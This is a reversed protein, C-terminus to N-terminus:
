PTFLPLRPALHIGGQAMDPPRRHITWPYRSRLELPSLGDSDLATAIQPVTALLLGAGCIRSRTFLSLLSLEWIPNTSRLTNTLHLGRVGRLNVSTGTLFHLVSLSQYISTTARPLSPPPSSDGPSTGASHSCGGLPTPHKRAPPQVMRHALVVEYLLLVLPSRWRAM